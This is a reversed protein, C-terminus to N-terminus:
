KIVNTFSIKLLEYTATIKWRHSTHGFKNCKLCKLPNPICMVVKVQLYGVKIATPLEPGNCTLFLSNTPISEGIKKLTVRRGGVVGQDKLEERIDIETM